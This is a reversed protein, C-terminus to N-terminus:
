KWIKFTGSFKALYISIFSNESSCIMFNPTVSLFSLVLNKYFFVVNERIVNLKSTPVLNLFKNNTNKKKKTAVIWTM